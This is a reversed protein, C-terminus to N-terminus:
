QLPPFDLLQLAEEPHDDLHRSAAARSILPKFAQAVKSLLHVVVNRLAALVQPAAGKRTRCADEGLTVDRVYHTRNEISWHGRTLGLLRRADAKQPTLSTIGYAREVTKNGKETRERTIEFGQALGPWKQRQTLITTVRLTRRELRGHGKDV